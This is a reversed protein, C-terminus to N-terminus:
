RYNLYRTEALQEQNKFKMTRKEVHFINLAHVLLTTFRKQIM